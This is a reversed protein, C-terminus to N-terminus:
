GADGSVRKLNVAGIVHRGCGTDIFAKGPAVDKQHYGSEDAM